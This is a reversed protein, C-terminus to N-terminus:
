FNTAGGNKEMCQKMWTYAYDKTPGTSQQIDFSGVDRGAVDVAYTKGGKLTSLLILADKGKTGWGDVRYTFGAVYEGNPIVTTKGKNSKITIPVNQGEGEDVWESPVNQVAVNLNADEARVSFELKMGDDRPLAILCVGNRDLTEVNISFSITEASAPMGALACLVAASAIPILRM